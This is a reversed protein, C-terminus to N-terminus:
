NEFARGVWRPRGISTNGLREYRFSRHVRITEGDATGVYSLDLTRVLGAATVTASLRVERPDDVDLEIPATARTGVVRYVTHNGDAIRDTTRTPVASFTRTIFGRPNGGRGGFPVTRAWYQWTGAGATPQFAAYTTTGDRTLQRAYASGNSWFVASAPPRGLFVPARPGETETAVLYSRDAGLSLNLALQERLTGNTYRTSRNAVLTYSRGELGAVHAEALRASSTVGDATLGPALEGAFRDDTPVPAPTVDAAPTAPDPTPVLASCGGLLLLLSVAAATARAM